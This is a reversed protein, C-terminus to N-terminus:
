QHASKVPKKFISASLFCDERCRVVDIGRAVLACVDVDPRVVLELVIDKVGDGMRVDLGHCVGLTRQRHHLFFCLSIFFFFSVFM